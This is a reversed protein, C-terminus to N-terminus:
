NTTPTILCTHKSGIPKYIYDPDHCKLCLKAKLAVNMRQDVTMGIYRPCGTPYSNFHNDYLNSTDGDAELSGCIRCKEDRRPPKFMALAPMENYIIEDYDVCNVQNVRKGGGGGSGIGGGSGGGVGVGSNGTAFSIPEETVNQLNQAESRFASIKKSIAELREPGDGPCKSLKSMQYPPFLRLIANVSMPGFAARNMNMDGSRGLELIGRILSETQLLWEVQRRFGGKGSIIPM